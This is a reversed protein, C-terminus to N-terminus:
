RDWFTRTSLGAPLRRSEQKWCGLQLQINNENESRVGHVGSKIIQGKRAKELVLERTEIVLGGAQQKLFLYGRAEKEGTEEGCKGLVHIRM